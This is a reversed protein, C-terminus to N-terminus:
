IHILSLNVNGRITNLGLMPLNTEALSQRVEEVPVEYPFHCEVAKFGAKASERIADPLSYENFLYGLNASCPIM